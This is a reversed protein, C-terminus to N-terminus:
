QLGQFLRNQLDQVANGTSAFQEIEQFEIQVFHTNDDGLQPLLQGINIAHQLQKETLDQGSRLKKILGGMISLMSNSSKQYESYGWIKRTATSVALWPEQNPHLSKETLYVLFDTMISLLAARDQARIMAFWTKSTRPHNRKYPIVM